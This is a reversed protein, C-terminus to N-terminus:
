GLIKGIVEVYANQTLDIIRVDEGVMKANVLTGPSIGGRTWFSVEVYQCPINMLFTQTGSGYMMGIREWELSNSTGNAIVQVEYDTKNVITVSAPGKISYLMEKGLM